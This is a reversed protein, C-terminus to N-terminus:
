AQACAIKSDECRKQTQGCGVLGQLCLLNIQEGPLIGQACPLKTQMCSFKAKAVLLIRNENPEM